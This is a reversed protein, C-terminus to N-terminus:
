WAENQVRLAEVKDSEIQMGSESYINRMGVYASACKVDLKLSQEFAWRGLEVNVWKRCGSLIVLYLTLRDYSPVEDLLRKAKDFHGARTFLDIMCAYHELEPTLYYIFCMEDLLM